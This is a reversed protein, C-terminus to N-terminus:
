ASAAVKVDSGFREHKLLEALLFALELAQDANLRPDCQTPYRSSLDAESVARADADPLVEGHHLGDQDQGGDHPM